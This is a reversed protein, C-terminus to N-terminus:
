PLYEAQALRVGADDKDSVVPAVGNPLPWEIGLEPDNWLVTRESSPDYFDTCKYLFEVRESLVLFGHAFGAPVWLMRRNDASLYEGVWQGFTPSSKRVDVAVDFVEGQTVRVLKGQTHRLQYHMGRLVWQSSSSHNDQVFQADIGGDAFKKAHWTEMFFGRPDAFAKPEILVVEPLRTPTFKM